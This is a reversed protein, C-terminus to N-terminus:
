QLQVMMSQQVLYGALHFTSILCYLFSCAGLEFLGTRLVTDIVHATNVLENSCLQVQVPQCTIKLCVFYTADETTCKYLGQQKTIDQSHLEICDSQAHDMAENDLSASFYMKIM